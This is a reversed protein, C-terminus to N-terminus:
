RAANRREPHPAAPSAAVDAAGQRSPAPNAPQLPHSTATGSPKLDPKPPAVPASAPGGGDGAQSGDVPHPKPPRAADNAGAVPQKHGHSAGACPALVCLLAALAASTAAMASISRIM